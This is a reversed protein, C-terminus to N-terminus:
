KKQSQNNVIVTYDKADLTVYDLNGLGVRVDIKKCKVPYLITCNGLSSDVKFIECNIKNNFLVNGLNAYLDITNCILMGNITVEGLNSEINLLDAKIGGDLEIEGLNDILNVKTAHINNHIEIEGLNTNLTVQDLTLPYNVTIGGLNTKFNINKKYDKPLYITIDTAPDKKDNINEIKKTSILLENKSKKGEFIEKKELKWTPNVVRKGNKYYTTKPYSQVVKLKSDETTYIHINNYGLDLKITEIKNLNYSKTQIIRSKQIEPLEPTKIKPLTTSSSKELKKIPTAEKTESLEMTKASEISKSQIAAEKKDATSSTGNFQLTVNGSGSDIKWKYDATNNGYSGDSHEKENLLVNGSGTDFYFGYNDLAETTTVNVNGSGSDIMADGSIDGDITVNGSGSDLYFPNAKINNMTTTGSGTDMTLDGMNSNQFNVSADGGSDISTEKANINKAVTKGFKTILSFKETNLTDITTQGDCSYIQTESLKINKPIYITIIANENYKSSPVENNINDTYYYVGDYYSNPLKWNEAKKAMTLTDKSQKIEYDSALGDATVKFTTGEKITVNGDYGHLKLKTINNFEKSYQTEKKTSNTTETNNTNNDSETHNTTKSTDGNGTTNTTNTTNSGTTNTNDIRNTMGTTKNSNTTDTNENTNTTTKATELPYHRQMKAFINLGGVLVTILVILSTIVAIKSQKKKNMIEKVRREVFSQNKCFAVTGITNRNRARYITMLITKSYAKREQENMQKIVLEDCSLECDEELYNPLKAVLPNFWHITRCIDGFLRYLLDYRKCHILEHKLVFTLEKKDMDLPLYINPIIKGSILPSSIDNHYYIQPKRKINLAQMEILLQQEVMNKYNLDIDTIRGKKLAKKLQFAQVFQFIGYCICGCGWVMGFITMLRNWIQTIKQNKKMGNVLNQQVELLFTGLNKNNEETQKKIENQNSTYAESEQSHMAEEEMKYKSDSSQSELVELQEQTQEQKELNTKNKNANEEKKIAQLDTQERTIGKSNTQEEKIQQSNIQEKTIKQLNTQGEEIQQSDNQERTIQQLYSQEKEQYLFINPISIPILLLFFVISWGYYFITQKVKGKLIKRLFGLFLIATGGICSMTFLKFFIIFYREM